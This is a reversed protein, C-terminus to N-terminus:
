KHAVMVFIVTHWYTCEFQWGFWHQRQGFENYLNKNWTIIRRLWIRQMNTLVACTCRQYPLLEITFRISSYRINGNIWHASKKPELLLLLSSISNSAFFYCLNRVRFRAWASSLIIRKMIIHLYDLSLSFSFFFILAILRFAIMCICSLVEISRAIISPECLWKDNKM